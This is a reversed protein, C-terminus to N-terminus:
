RKRPPSEPAPESDLMWAPEDPTHFGMLDRSLSLETALYRYAKRSGSMAEILSKSLQKVQPETSKSLEELRPLSAKGVILYFRAAQSANDKLDDSKLSRAALEWVHDPYQQLVAQLRGQRQIVWTTAWVCWMSGTTKLNELVLPEFKEYHLVVYRWANWQPFLLLGDNTVKSDEENIRSIVLKRLRDDPEYEPTRMLATLLVDRAQADLGPRYLEREILKTAQRRHRFIFDAAANANQPIDDSRIQSFALQWQEPTQSRANPLTIMAASAWIASYLSRQCSSVRTLLNLKMFLHLIVGAPDDVAFDTLRAAAAM